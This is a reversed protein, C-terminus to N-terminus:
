PAKPEPLGDTVEAIGQKMEDYSMDREHQFSGLMGACGDVGSERMDTMMKEGDKRGQQFQPEFRGAQYGYEAAYRQFNAQATAHHRKLDPPSAGCVQAAGNTAGSTAVLQDFEFQDQAHAELAGALGAALALALSLYKRM